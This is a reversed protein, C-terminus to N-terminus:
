TTLPCRKQGTIEIYVGAMSYVVSTCVYVLLFLCEVIAFGFSYPMFSPCIWYFVYRFQISLVMLAIFLSFSTQFIYFKSKLFKMCIYWINQNYEGM